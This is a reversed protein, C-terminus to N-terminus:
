HDLSLDSITGDEYIGPRPPKVYAGSVRTLIQSCKQQEMETVSWTLKLKTKPKPIKQIDREYIGFGNEENIGWRIYENKEKLTGYINTDFLISSGRLASGLPTKMKRRQMNYLDIM